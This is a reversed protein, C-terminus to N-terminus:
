GVAPGRGHRLPDIALETVVVTLRDRGGVDGLPTGAAAERVGARLHRLAGLRRHRLETAAPHPAPAPSTM